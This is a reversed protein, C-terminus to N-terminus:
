ACPERPIKFVAQWAVDSSIDYHSRLQVWYFLVGIPYLTIALVDLYFIARELLDRLQLSPPAGSETSAAIGHAHKSM